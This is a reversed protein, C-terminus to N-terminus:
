AVPTKVQLPTMNDMQYHDARLTWEVARRLHLRWRGTASRMVLWDGSRFRGPPLLLTPPKDLNEDAPLYIVREGQDYANAFGLYVQEPRSGLYEVGFILRRLGAYDMWRVVGVQL